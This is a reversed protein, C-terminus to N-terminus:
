PPGELERVRELVASVAARRATTSSADAETAFHSTSLAVITGPVSEKQSDGVILPAVRRAVDAPTIGSALSMMPLEIQLTAEVTTRLELMMLSDMGIEALPRHRDVEKPPLRLVRAIEGVVIDLLAETADETSMTRLKELTAATDLGQRTGAVAGVVSFTPTRTAALERKATMWDIRAIACSATTAKGNHDHLWDLGDLAMQSTILSSAFRKKLNANSAIHRSLYGADEIGGWSVAVASRGQAHMRRALGEMFANAAVYNFQGPNGFLTTASSYFLLYDLQLDTTLRELNLAGAIKPRLALEISDQDMGEILHDDLVMAAHVIGKIPRRKTIGRFLRELAREDAVDTAVVEVEAGQRRLAEVNELALDSLRGTRSVLALHRAGRGVLWAATALGFGSTGGIVVHVGESAVPFTGKAPLDSNARDAPVVVIKGIHGSRQM